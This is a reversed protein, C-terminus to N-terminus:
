SFRETDEKIIEGKKTYSFLFFIKKIISKLKNIKKNRFIAHATRPSALPASVPSDRHPLPHSVTEGRM